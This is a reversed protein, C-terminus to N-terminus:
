KGEVVAVVVVAVEAVPVAAAVAASVAEVLAAGVEVRVVWAQLAVIAVRARM